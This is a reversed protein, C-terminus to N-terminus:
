AAPRRRSVVVARLCDDPPHDTETGLDYPAYFQLCSFREALLTQIGAPTYVHLSARREASANPLDLEITTDLVAGFPTESLLDLYRFCYRGGGPLKRSEEIGQLRRPRYTLALDLVLPARPSLLVSLRSVLSQIESTRTVYNFSLLGALAGGFQAPSSFPLEQICAALYRGNPDRQAARRVMPLSADVGVFPYGQSSLPTELRGDGCGLSLISGERPLLSAFFALEDEEAEGIAQAYWESRSYLNEM